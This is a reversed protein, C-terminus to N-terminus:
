CTRASSLASRLRMSRAIEASLATLEVPCGLTPRGGLAAAIGRLRPRMLAAARLLIDRRIVCRRACPFIFCALADFGTRLILRAARFFIAAACRARQAFTLARDADKGSPSTGLLWRQRLRWILRVGSNM